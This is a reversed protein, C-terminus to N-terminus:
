GAPEVAIVKGGWTCYRDSTIARKEVDSPRGDCVEVTMDAWHFDNPDLHWTYGVNVGPEGYVIRGNPISPAETGALLDRAVAIDDLETLLVKFNEADAVRITVVVGESPPSSPPSSPPNSPQPSAGPGTSCAAVIATLLLLPTLRAGRLVLSLM